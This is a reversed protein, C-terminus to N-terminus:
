FGPIKFDAIVDPVLGKADFGEAANTFADTIGVDGKILAIFGTALAMGMATGGIGKFMTKGLFFGVIGPLGYSLAKKIMSPDEPSTESAGDNFAKTVITEFIKAEAAKSLQKGQELALKRADEVGQKAMGAAARAAEQMDISSTNFQEAFMNVRELLSKDKANWAEKLADQMSGDQQAAYLEKAKETIAETGKGEFFKGDAWDLAAWGGLTKVIFGWM